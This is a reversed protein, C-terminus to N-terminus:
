KLKDGIIETIKGISKRSEKQMDLGKSFTDDNFAVKDNEITSSSKLIRVSEIFEEFHKVLMRHQNQIIFPTKVTALSDIAYELREITQNLNKQYANYKEVSFSEVEDFEIILNSTSIVLDGITDLRKAYNLHAQNM